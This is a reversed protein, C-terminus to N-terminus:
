PGQPGSLHFLRTLDCPISDLFQFWGVDKNELKQSCEELIEGLVDQTYGRHLALSLPGLDKDETLFPLM